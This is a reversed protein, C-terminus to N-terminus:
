HTTMTNQPNKLRNERLFNEFCLVVSLLVVRVCRACLACFHLPLYTYVNIRVCSMFTYLSM